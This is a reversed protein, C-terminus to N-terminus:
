TDSDLIPGDSNTGTSMRSDKKKPAVRHCEICIMQWAREAILRNKFDFQTKNPVEGHKRLEEGSVRSSHPRESSRGTPAPRTGRFGDTREHPVRIRGVLPPELMRRSDDIAPLIPLDPKLAGPLFATLCYGLSAPDRKLM